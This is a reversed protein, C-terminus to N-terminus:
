AKAKSPWLTFVRHPTTRVIALLFQLAIAKNPLTTRTGDSATVVFGLKSRKRKTIAVRTKEQAATRIRREILNM